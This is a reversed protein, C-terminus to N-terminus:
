HHESEGSGMHLSVCGSLQGCAIPFQGVLYVVVIGAILNAHRVSGSLYHSYVTSYRDVLFVSVFTHATILLFFPTVHVNGAVESFETALQIRGLWLQNCVLCIFLSGSSDVTDGWM